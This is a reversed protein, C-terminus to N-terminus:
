PLLQQHPSDLDWKENNDFYLYNLSDSSSSFINEWSTGKTANSFHVYLHLYSVIISDSLTSVKHRLCQHM